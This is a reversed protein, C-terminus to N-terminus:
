EAQASVLRDGREVQALRMAKVRRRLIENQMGKLHLAIFLLTFGIAALLLPTRM